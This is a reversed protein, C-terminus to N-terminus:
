DISLERYFSALGMKCLSEAIHDPKWIVMIHFKYPGGLEHAIALRLHFTIFYKVSYYLKIIFKGICREESQLFVALLYLTDFVCDFTLLYIQHVFPRGLVDHQLTVSLLLYNDQSTPNLHLVVLGGSVCNFLGNRVEVAFGPRGSMSSAM